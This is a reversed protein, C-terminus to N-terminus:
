PHSTRSLCRVDRLNLSALHCSQHLCSPGCRFLATGPIGRGASAFSRLNDRPNAYDIASRASSLFLLPTSGDTSNRDCDKGSSRAFDHASWPPGEPLDGFRSALVERSDRTRRCKTGRYLNEQLGDGGHPVLVIAAVLQTVKCPGHTSSSSWLAINVFHSSSCLEDTM